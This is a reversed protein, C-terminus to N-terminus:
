KFTSTMKGNLDFHATKREKKIKILNDEISIYKYSIPIILEGHKNIVGKINNQSVIALGSKFKGIADYSGNKIWGKSASFLSEKLPFESQQYSHHNINYIGLESIYKINFFEPNVVFEGKRNVLGQVRKNSTKGSQNTTSNYKTIIALGDENFPDIKHYITDILIKGKTDIMGYKSDNNKVISIGGEDFRPEWKFGELTLIKGEKNTLKYAGDDKIIYGWDYTRIIQNESFERDNVSSIIYHEKLKNTIESESCGSIIFICSLIILSFHTQIM